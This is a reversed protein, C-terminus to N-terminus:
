IFVHLLSWDDHVNQSAGVYTQKLVLMTGVDFLMENSWFNELRIESCPEEITASGLQLSNLQNLSEGHSSGDQGIGQWTSQLDACTGDTKCRM